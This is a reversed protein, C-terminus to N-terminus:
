VRKKLMSIINENGFDKALQIYAKANINEKLLLKVMKEDDNSIAIEIAQSAKAGARLLMKVIEINSINVAAGLAASSAKAGANLLMKVIEVNGLNAATALAASAKAGANLLLEVMKINETNVATELAISKNDSAKAGAKLLLKVIKLNGLGVAITLSSGDNAKAGANLLFEVMKINETNVAIELAISNDYNAKAGIKLMDAVMKLDGKEVADIFKLNVLKPNNKHKSLMEAMKIKKMDVAIKIAKNLDAGAKLLIKVMKENEMNVAEKMAKNPYAELNLLIEVMRENEMIVALNIGRNTDGGAYYLRKVINEHNMKVANYLADGKEHVTIEGVGAKLVFDVMREKGNEAALKLAKGKNAGAKLLKKVINEDKINVVLNLILNVSAGEELLSDILDEINLKPVIDFVSNNHEKTKEAAYLLMNISDKDVAFTLAMTVNAGAKLLKRIILDHQTTKKEAALSLIYGETSKADAGAKLLLEVMYLNGDEVAKSLGSTPNATNGKGTLKEDLLLKAIEPQNHQVATYLAVDDEINAKVFNKNKHNILYKVIESFGKQVAKVLPLFEPQHKKMLSIVRKMDNKDVANAFADRDDFEYRLIIEVLEKKTIPKNPKEDVMSILVEKKLRM